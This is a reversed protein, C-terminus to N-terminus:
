DDRTCYCPLDDSGCESCFFAGLASLVYERDDSTSMAAFEHVIRAADITTPGADRDVYERIYAALANPSMALVKQSNNAPM